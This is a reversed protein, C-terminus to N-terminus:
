KKVGGSWYSYGPYKDNLTDMFGEDVMNNLAHTLKEHLAEKNKISAFPWISSALVNLALLMVSMYLM